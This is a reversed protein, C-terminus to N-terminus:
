AAGGAAQSAVFGKAPAGAEAPGGVQTALYANGLERIHDQIDQFYELHVQEEAILLEFIKASVYDNNKQCVHLSENYERLATEELQIGQAMIEAIPQNKKTEMDPRSTPRGNLLLVREALMEAHRMEDIAILKMSAAIQGYDKDALEYHQSMYQLIAALESARAKNLVEIVASNKPSTPNAM